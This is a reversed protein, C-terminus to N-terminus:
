RVPERYSPQIAGTFEQSHSLHAEFNREYAGSIAQHDTLIILNEANSNEAQRTFNFSGTIVTRGDIVMVKNHAIPHEGDTWETVGHQKLYVAQVDNGKTAERDLVVRVTVGRDKAQALAQAIASSTFGYAQMDITHEAKEIQAVVAAECGGRPSFYVSIGDERAAAPEVSGASGAGAYHRRGGSERFQQALVIAGVILVFSVFHAAGKPM